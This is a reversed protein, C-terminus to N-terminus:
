NKNSINVFVVQLEKAFYEDEPRLDNRNMYADLKSKAKTLMTTTVEFEQEELIMLSLMRVEYNGEIVLDFLFSFYHQCDLTQLAYVLSGRNNCNEPVSIANVLHVVADDHGIERIVSAAWNRIQGNTSRLLPIMSDVVETGGRAVLDRSAIERFEQDDSQLANVLESITKNKGNM